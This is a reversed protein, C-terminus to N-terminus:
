FNIGVKASLLWNDAGEIGPALTEDETNQYRVGAGMFLPGSRYNLNASAQISWLGETSGDMYSARVYGIGPGVGLTWKPSLTMFYNPNMEFSTIEMGPILLPRAAPLAAIESLAGITNHDTVVIRDLGRSRAAAILKDIRTLSDKSYHTHTHFDVKLM